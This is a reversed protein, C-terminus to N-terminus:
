PLDGLTPFIHRELDAKDGDVNRLGRDRRRKLWADTLDRLKPTTPKPPAPAPMARIGREVQRLIKRAEDERTSAVRAIWKGAPNKFRVYWKGARKYVSGMARGECSACSKSRAIMTLNLRARRPRARALSCSCM